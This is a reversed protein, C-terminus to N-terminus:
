FEYKAGMRLTRPESPRSLRGNVETDPPDVGDVHSPYYYSIDKGKDNLLNLLEGYVTLHSAKYAARLNILAEPDARQSNDPLLPYAGLYRLRASIEWPGKIASFGIEGAQEVSGEIFKGVFGEDDDPSDLRSHSGTYVADLALWDVPRWFAVLEYGRRKGAGKPEVANSDGVFVLESGLNLWWYAGSLRFSGVEYRAGFEYGTGQSLAPIPDTKSVAGRGDNSHFGRGWNGYLEVHADVAYAVGFKPSVQSANKRGANSLSNNAVVNFNYYDGRLGGTIRLNKLPTWTAESFGAISGEKVSNNSIDTAYVGKDTHDVGVSGIDDYRLETGIDVKLVNNRIVTRLAKGGWTTRRDFQRIQYDYTPDSVMHWNYYQGYANAEWDSGVLQTGVIWRDTHGTATPDLSCYESPCVKTGFAREPAQETPDWDALYGSVTVSLRGFSTPQTYKGWGSYHQLNEPLQWPGNYTKWQGIYTLTGPGVDKSAGGAFRKWGYQGDELAVFPRKLREITTLYSAGALSFDGVDARYPGKRYDIREVVEPILGNVDLYGQGHGHTRLNWPMGDIYSSFDTGHDLNFGRLFYQNAKGSGSHQAAILGPVAELLEAVRLLPRVSLDAGGVAGESAAGARGILQEGRAFIVIEQLEETKGNAASVAAADALVTEAAAASLSLACLSAATAALAARARTTPM